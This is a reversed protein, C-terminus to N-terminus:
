HSEFTIERHQFHRSTGDIEVCLRGDPLVSRIIGIHVSDNVICRQPQDKQYLHGIYGTLIQDYKETKLQLFRQEVRSLLEDLVQDASGQFGEVALSTAQELGQFDTQHVNLGIGTVSQHLFAGLLTNEILIGAIKKNEVFIDNPWKISVSRGPLLNAVTDRVGLAVAASLYFQKVAALFRVEYFVSFTLNQGPASHWQNSGQGRGATQHDALIVAGDAPKNKALWHKMYTNTSETESLHILFKGTFLTNFHKSGM